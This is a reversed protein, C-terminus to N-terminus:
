SGPTPLVAERAGEPAEFRGPEPTLFRPGEIRLEGIPDGHIGQEEGWMYFRMRTPVQAGDLEAFEEYVIAHPEAEAKETTTGFTVVYAMGHMRASGPDKYVVYWDDPTDGVGSEFSLRAAEFSQGQVQREGLRELRTGPDRLKLPALVFYPWTLVHFRAMPLEVDGPTVWATEGDWIVSPGSATDIRSRDMNTTFTMEGALITNGGFDVEVHSALAPQALWADRGHAREMPAAFRDADSEAAATDAPVPAPPAPAESGCGGLAGAALAALLANRKM